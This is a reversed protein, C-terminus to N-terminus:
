PIELSVPVHHSTRTKKDRKEERIGPGWCVFICRFQVGVCFIKKHMFTRLSDVRLSCKRLVELNAYL